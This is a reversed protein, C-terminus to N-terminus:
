ANFNMELFLDMIALNAMAEVIPVARPLVCPDHRGSASLTSQNLNADLTQQEKSITSTPKFAVEMYIPESTAMGGIIGGAHNTSTGIKNGSLEWSDNNESGKLNAVHLGEGFSIGKVANINLIYLGLIAQLKGFVPEGLGIPCNEITCVIIGGLTDGESKAKEIAEIMKQSTTIDPCRVLSEEISAKSPIQNTKLLEITHIQKVWATIKIPEPLNTAKTNELYQKSLAGAAVWGATIRASSRGGGRHDRVGYKSQYLLDAHGPRYIDKLHDYDAPKTDNNAILFTIPSGITQGEFVGSVIQVEDAENRSTTLNSQGPRRRQMDRQLQQIDIKFGAPFGDLVSGVFAGHSEGFSTLILNKGISNRAM